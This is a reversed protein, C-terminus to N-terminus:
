SNSPLDLESSSSMRRQQVFRGSGDGLFWFRDEEWKCVKREPAEKVLAGDSEVGVAGAEPQARPAPPLAPPCNGDGSGLAALVKSQSTPGRTKVMSTPWFAM